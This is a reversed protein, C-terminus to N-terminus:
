SREPNVMHYLLEFESDNSGEELVDRMVEAHERDIEHESNEFASFVQEIDEAEMYYVLFDGDATSEIFASETYVGENQLTAIAENERHRIEEMWEKLQPVRGSEIEDKTMIVDVM